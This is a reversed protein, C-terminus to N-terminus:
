QKPRKENMSLVAATTVALRGVVAMGSGQAGQLSWPIDSFAPSEAISVPSTFSPFIHILIKSIEKTATGTNLPWGFLTETVFCCCRTEADQGDSRSRRRSFCEKLLWLEMRECAMWGAKAVRAVRVLDQWTNLMSCGTFVTRFPNFKHLITGFEYILVSSKPCPFYLALGENSVPFRLANAAQNESFDDTNLWLFDVTSDMPNWSVCAVSNSLALRVKCLQRRRRLACVGQAHNCSIANVTAVHSLGNLNGHLLIHCM